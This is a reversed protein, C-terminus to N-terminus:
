PYAISMAVSETLKWDPHTKYSLDIKQLKESNIETAFIHLDIGCFDYLEKLNIDKNLGKATLLPELARETFIKPEVDGSAVFVNIISQPSIEILKDWPREILYDDLVNWEYNLCLITSFFAGISTGYLSEIDDINWYKEGSLHKLVGYTIFGSPGGGAMVIHKIVM